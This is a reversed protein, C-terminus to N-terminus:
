PLSHDSFSYLIPLTIYIYVQELQLCCNETHDATRKMTRLRSEMSASVKLLNYVELINLSYQYGITGITGTSEDAALIGKGPAVIAKATAILEEGHKLYPPYAPVVAAASM